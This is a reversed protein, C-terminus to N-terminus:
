AYVSSCLISFKTRSYVCTHTCTSTGLLNSVFSMLLISELVTQKTKSFNLTKNHLSENLLNMDPDQHRTRTIINLYVGNHVRTTTKLPLDDEQSDSPQDDSTGV